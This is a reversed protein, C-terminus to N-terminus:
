MRVDNQSRKVSSEAQNAPQDAGFGQVAAYHNNLDQLTEQCGQLNDFRHPNTVDTVQNILKMAQQVTEPSKFTCLHRVAESNALVLRCQRM